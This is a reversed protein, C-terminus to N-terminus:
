ATKQEKFKRQLLASMKGKFSYYKDYATQFDQFTGRYQPKSYDGKWAEVIWYEQKRVNDEKM